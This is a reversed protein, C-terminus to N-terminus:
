GQPNILTICTLIYLLFCQCAEERESRKTRCSPRNAVWGGEGALVDPELNGIYIRNLRDQAQELDYQNGM